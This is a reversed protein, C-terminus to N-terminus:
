GPPPPGNERRPVRGRRRQRHSPAGNDVQGNQPDEADNENQDGEDEREELLGLITGDDDNIALRNMVERLDDPPKVVQLGIEDAEEFDIVFDHDPYDATLTMSMREAEPKPFAHRLLRGAYEEAVKLIRSHKTFEVSDIKDLMPQMMEAVFHSAIPLLERINKGSCEAWFMMQAHIAKLAEKNLGDVSNVVELSSIREERHKHWVQADLPGLEANEGMVIKTAGLCFLTAASKAVGPVVATYAGCHKRIATAIRYASGAYGGPSEVIIAVPKGRPMTRLASLVLEYLEPGIMGLPSDPSDEQQVLAFVPLGLSARVKAALEKFRPPLDVARGPYINASLHPSKPSDADNSV